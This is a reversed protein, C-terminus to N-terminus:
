KRAVLFPPDKKSLLSFSLCGIRGYSPFFLNKAREVHLFVLHREGCYVLPPSTKYVIFHYRYQFSFLPIVRLSRFV